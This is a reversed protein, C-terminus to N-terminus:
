KKRNTSNDKEHNFDEVTAGLGKGIEKVAETVVNDNKNAIEFYANMGLIDRAILARLQNVILSASNNIYYWRQPIGNDSAYKVFSWLLVERSPLKAMLQEATKSNSLDERNLDAYEYAFKNLLGANSVQFYYSTLGTTDSPIFVDPLIGGGGYVKRGGMTVYISDAKLKVSDENFVEGSSYRDIIEKEYEDNDGRTFDKQICRGSPTYYRQVTLRIQSSDPLLVPRQVLGKGFSRRGLILGRDNDQIAGAVIESASATFEDVLVVLPQTMFNGTGDAIWNENDRSNRGRTEVIAKYPELFENAILIAQDVLGGLNGRLDIVFSEAGKMRLNNIAQLFESYTNHAFKSIHIYGINGDMLYSADVSVSPIESRTVIFDIPKESTHRKITIKVKSDKEGRLVDFVDDNSVAAGTMEKDDVSIIRDGPLIGERQAPGGSVVEVVCISDTMIQFQIGVGFFSSELERNSRELDSVPIYVTHPDLNKLMAPITMEVLSDTNIVDVYENQILQFVTNLKQQSPSIEDGGALLYGTWMGGTFLLAAILPLWLKIKCGSNM